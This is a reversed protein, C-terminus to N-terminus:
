NASRCVHLHSYRYCIEVIVCADDMRTNQKEELVRIEQMLSDEVAAFSVEHVVQAGTGSGAAQQEDADLAAEVAAEAQMDCCHPPERYADSVRPARASTMASSPSAGVALVPAAMPARAAALLRVASLRRTLAEQAAEVRAFRDNYEREYELHREDVKQLLLGLLQDASADEGAGDGATWASTGRGLAQRHLGPALASTSREM